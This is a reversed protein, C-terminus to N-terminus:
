RGHGLQVPTHLSNVFESEWDNSFLKGLSYLADFATRNMYKFYNRHYQQVELYCSTQRDDLRHSQNEVFAMFTKVEDNFRRESVQV